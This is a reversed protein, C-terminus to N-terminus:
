QNRKESAEALLDYRTRRYCIQSLRGNLEPNEDLIFFEHMYRSEITGRLEEGFEQVLRAINTTHNGGLTELIPNIM